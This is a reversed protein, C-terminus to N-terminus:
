PTSNWGTDRRQIQVRGDGFKAASAPTASTVVTFTLATVGPKAASAPTAATVMTMTVAAVVAGVWRTARRTTM